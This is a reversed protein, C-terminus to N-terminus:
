KRSGRSPSAIPDSSYMSSDFAFDESSISSSGGVGFDESLFPNSTTSGALLDSISPVPASLLESVASGNGSDNHLGTSDTGNLPDNGVYRYLDTDGASFGSPDETVFRGVAPDYWRHSYDYLKTVSDYWQGTYSFTFSSSLPGNTVQVGSSNFEKVDGFSDFTRHDVVARTANSVIDRITGENDGLGWLVNTGDDSALVQDVAAGSLYRCAVAPRNTTVALSDPDHIELAVNDGQYM